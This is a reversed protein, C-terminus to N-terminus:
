RKGMKQARNRERASAVVEYLTQGPKAPQGEHQSDEQESETSVLTVREGGLGLEDHEEDSEPDSSSAEEPEHTPEKIDSDKAIMEQKDSPLTFVDSFSSEM